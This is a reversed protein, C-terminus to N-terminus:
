YLQLPDERLIKEVQSHAEFFDKWDMRDFLLLTRLSRAIIEDHSLDPYGFKNILSSSSEEKILEFITGALIEIHVLRLMLPLAWMESMKLSIKEQYTKLFEDLDNQVLEIEYYAIISKAIHYVRPHDGEGKISPLKSFYVEPLDDRILEIAKEIVYYNDLFWEVGSSTIKKGKAIQSLKEYAKELNELHSDSDEVISFNESQPDTERTFDTIESIFENFPMDKIHKLDSDDLM